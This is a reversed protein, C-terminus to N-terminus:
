SKRRSSTWAWWFAGTHASLTRGPSRKSESRRQLFATGVCSMAWRRIPYVMQSRYLQQNRNDTPLLERGDPGRRGHRTGYSDYRSPLSRNHLVRVIFGAVSPQCQFRSAVTCRPADIRIPALTPLVTLPHLSECADNDSPLPLHEASTEETM